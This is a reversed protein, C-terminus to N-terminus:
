KLLQVAPMGLVIHPKYKNLQEIADILNNTLQNVGMVVTEGKPDLGSLPQETM